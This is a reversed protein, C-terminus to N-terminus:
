PKEIACQKIIIIIQDLDTQNLDQHCPIQVLHDRYFQSVSCDSFTDNEALEEWRFLALGKNRIKDFSQINNLVFPFVYPITNDPLVSFLPVGTKINSLNQLLFKFNDRRKQKIKKHNSHEVILKNIHSYNTHTDRPNFYRFSLSDDKPVSQQNEITQHAQKKFTSLLTRIMNISKPVLPLANLLIKFDSLLSSHLATHNMNNATSGYVISGEHTPLFKNCSVVSYDGMNQSNDTNPSYFSHACDEIIVIKKYTKLLPSLKSFDPLFGFFHVFVCVKVTDDLQNKFDEIDVSLDKNLKYFRINVGLWVFPEVLGLCNYSPLLVTDKTKLKLHQGIIALGTRGNVSFFSSDSTYATKKFLLNGWKFDTMGKIIPHPYDKSDALPKSFIITMISWVYYHPVSLLM